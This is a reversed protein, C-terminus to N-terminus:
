VAPLNVSSLSTIRIALPTEETEPSPDIVAERQDTDLKEDGQTAAEQQEGDLEEDGQTVPTSADLPTEETEPDSSAPVAPEAHTEAAFWRCADAISSHEGIDHYTVVVPTYIAGMGGVSNRLVDSGIPLCQGVRELWGLQQLLRLEFSQLYPKLLRLREARGLVRGTHGSVIELIQLRRYRRVDVAGSQRLNRAVLLAAILWNRLHASGPFAVAARIEESRGMLWADDLATNGLMRQGDDYQENHYYFGFSKPSIGIIVEATPVVVIKQAALMTVMSAYYDPYPGQFFTGIGSLSDIFQRNWIFHQSNFSFRHRFRLAREGLTLACKRALLYPQDFARFLWPLRV